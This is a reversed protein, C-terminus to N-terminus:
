KRRTVVIAQRIPGRLPLEVRGGPGEYVAGTSPGGDLALADRCGKEALYHGLAFLSPGREANTAISFSIRKGGPHICVATREARKKDDSRVNPKGDVVLRPRCQVALEPARKPDYTETEFLSANGHDIELVGGSLKPAFPSLEVKASRSLGVPADHDDFFGANVALVDEPGKLTKDIERTAGVDAIRLSVRALDFTFTDVVFREGDVTTAEHAHTNDPRAAGDTKPATPLSPKEPAADAGDPGGVRCGAVLAITALLRLRM